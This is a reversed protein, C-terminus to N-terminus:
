EELFFLLVIIVFKDIPKINDKYKNFNLLLAIQNNHNISFINNTKRNERIM